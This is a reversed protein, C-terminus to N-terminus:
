KDNKLLNINILLVFNNNNSKIVMFFFVALENGKGATKRRIHAM